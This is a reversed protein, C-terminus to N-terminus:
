PKPYKKGLELFDRGSWAGGKTHGKEVLIGHCQFWPILFFLKDDVSGARWITDLIDDRGVAGSSEFYPTLDELVGKDVLVDVSVGEWLDYLDTGQKRAIDILFKNYNSYVEISVFYKEQAQNFAKVSKYMPSSVSVSGFTGLTVIERGEPIYQAPMPARAYEEPTASQPTPTSQASDAGSRVAESNKIETDQDLTGAGCGSFCLCCVLACIIVTKLFRKKGM